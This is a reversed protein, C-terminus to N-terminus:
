PLAKALRNLLARATAAKLLCFNSLKHTSSVRGGVGDTDAADCDLLNEERTTKNLAAHVVHPALSYFSAVEPINIEVINCLSGTGTNRGLFFAEKSSIPEVDALKKM